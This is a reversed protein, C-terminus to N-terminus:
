SHDDSIGRSRYFMETQEAAAVFREAGDSLTHRKVSSRAAFAMADFQQDDLECAERLAADLAQESNAQIMWGNERHRILDIASGTQNSAIVPIGGALGEPVVLGWGDYRSPVCLVDGQQYAAPLGNWDVFGQFTVRSGVPRCQNELQLRLPGTGLWRLSIDPRELALRSFARALLDVGKREIFSGSYLFRIGHGRRRDPKKNALFGSLNSFYPLNIFRREAGFERRYQEIAFSGICWIPTRTRHLAALRWRRYLRGLWGAGRFGPREGWFCWPHGSAVRRQLLGRAISDNYVNLVVLGPETLWKFARQIGSPERDLLVHSHHIDPLRWEREASKSHLYVVQFRGDLRESVSDFLEVQYPSTLHTM